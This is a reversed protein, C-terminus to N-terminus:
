RSSHIPRSGDFTIKEFVWEGSGAYRVVCNYDSRQWNGFSNLSELYGSIDYRYRGLYEVTVGYTSRPPFKATAPRLLRDAVFDQAAHYAASKDASADRAVKTFVFFMTLIMCGISLRKIFVQKQSSGLTYVGPKYLGYHTQV